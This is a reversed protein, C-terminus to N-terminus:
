FHQGRDLTMGANGETVQIWLSAFFEDLLHNGVRQDGEDAEETQALGLENPRNGDHQELETDTQEVRALALTHHFITEVM